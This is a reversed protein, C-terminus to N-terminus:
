LAKAVVSLFYNKKTAGLVSKSHRETRLQKTWISNSSEATKRKTPRAYCEHEVFAFSADVVFSSRNRYAAALSIMTMMVGDVAVPAAVASRRTLMVPLLSPQVRKVSKTRHYKKKKMM